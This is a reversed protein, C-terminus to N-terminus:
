TPTGHSNGVAAPGVPDSHGPHTALADAVAEMGIEGVNAVLAEIQQETTPMPVPVTEIELVSAALMAMGLWVQNESLAPGAAKVLRLKDLATLRRIVLRRGSADNIATREAAQELILTTPTM